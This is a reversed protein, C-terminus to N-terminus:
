AFLTKVPIRKMMAAPPSSIHFTMNRGRFADVVKGQQDRQELLHAYIDDYVLGQSRRVAVPAAQIIALDGDQKQGMHEHTAGMKETGHLLPDGLMLGAEAM